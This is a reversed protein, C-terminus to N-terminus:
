LLSAINKEPLVFDISTIYGKKFFGDQNILKNNNFNTKVQSIGSKCLILLLLIITYKKIRM